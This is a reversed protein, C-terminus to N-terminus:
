PQPERRGHWPGRRWDPGDPGSQREGLRLPRLGSTRSVLRRWISRHYGHQPGQDRAPLNDARGCLDGVLRRRPMLCCGVPSSEPCIRCSWGCNNGMRKSHRHGASEHNLFCQYYRIEITSTSPPVGIRHTLGTVQVFACRPIPRHNGRYRRATHSDRNMCSSAGPRASNDSRSM